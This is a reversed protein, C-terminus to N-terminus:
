NNLANILEELPPRKKIDDLGIFKIIGQKDVIFLAREAMGGSRLVGYTEAVKGHPYFDSLVPFDIGGMAQTWAHLTPINDVTIGLVVADAEEFYDSALQYGPWQASCVPTWAAPVFSLVVQKKGRFDSLRVKEGNISPLEFDPAVDGVAVKLVSDIGGKDGKTFLLDSLQIQQGILSSACITYLAIFGSLLFRSKM